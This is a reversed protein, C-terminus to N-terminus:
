ADGVALSDDHAKPLQQCTGIIVFETKGDNIKLKDCPMWARIENVCREVAAIADDTSSAM